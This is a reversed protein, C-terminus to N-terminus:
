RARSSRVTMRLRVPRVTRTSTPPLGSTVSPRRPGPPTTAQSQAQSCGVRTTGRSSPTGASATRIQARSAYRSTDGPYGPVLSSQFSTGGNESRYYGLWIPGAAQPIGGASANYVGCYDNSSGVIVDTNRPDIVDAPENQRGRSRSCESLTADTYPRGTVLTYDSTYGGTGPADNTLRVDAGPSAAVAAAAAVAGVILAVVVVLVRRM